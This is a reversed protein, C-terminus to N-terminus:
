TLQDMLSGTAAPAPSTGALSTNESIFKEVDAETAPDTQSKELADIKAQQAAFIAKVSTWQEPSMDTIELLHFRRNSPETENALRILDRAIGRLTKARVTAVLEQEHM